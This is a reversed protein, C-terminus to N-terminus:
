VPLSRCQTIRSKLGPRMVRKCSWAFLSARQSDLNNPKKLWLSVPKVRMIHLSARGSLVVTPMLTPPIFRWLRCCAEPPPFSNRGEEEAWNPMRLLSQGQWVPTLAVHCSRIVGRSCRGTQAQKASLKRTEFTQRCTCANGACKIKCCKRGKNLANKQQQKKCACDYKCVNWTICDTLTHNTLLYYFSHATLNTKSLNREKVHFQTLKDM